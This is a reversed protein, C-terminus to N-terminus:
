TTQISILILPCEMVLILLILTINLIQDNSLIDSGVKASNTPLFRVSM